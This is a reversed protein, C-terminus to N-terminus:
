QRWQNELYKIQEDRIWINLADALFTLQAESGAVGLRMLARFGMGDADVISIDTQKEEGKYKYIITRTTPHEAEKFIIHMIPQGSRGTTAKRDM